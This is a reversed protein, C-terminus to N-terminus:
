DGDNETSLTANTLRQVLTTFDSKRRQIFTSGYSAPVSFGSSVKYVM